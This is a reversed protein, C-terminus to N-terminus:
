VVEAAMLVPNWAADDTVRVQFVRDIASGNRFFRARRAYQGADGTTAYRWSSWTSGNDDSWRLMISADTAKECVFEVLPYRMRKRNPSSIVPAIRERCKVSGAFTNADPDLRYIIGDDAGVFHYGYAFAHCTPRWQAYNGDVLEAREHWQQTMEDYVLTTDVNPVNLCYFHSGGDSYTFARSATLDLGEFREEIARTSIRQPSYGQASLVMAQGRQDRGLWTVTNASKQVSHTAACGYEIFASNNREFVTLGGVSNWVETINRKFLWLERHDAVLSVLEGPAGDVSARDLVDITMADDLATWGFFQGGRILFAIHADLFAIRDGGPYNPSTTLTGSSPTYVYLFAGDNIVLQTLNSAFDVVGGASGLSALVTKSGDSGVRILSDDVVAYLTDAHTFLGRVVSM